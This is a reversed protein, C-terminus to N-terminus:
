RVEFRDIHVGRDDAIAVLVEGPARFRVTSYRAAQEASPEPLLDFSAVRGAADFRFVGVGFHTEDWLGKAVLAGGDPLPRVFYDSGGAVKSPLQVIAGARSGDPRTWVAAFSGDGVDASVGIGGDPLPVSGSQLRGQTQADLPSGPRSRVPAWQGAGVLVRPGGVAAAVRSTVGFGVPYRGLVTGRPDLEYATANSGLTALSLGGEASIALDVPRDTPM